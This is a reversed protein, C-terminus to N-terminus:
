YETMFRVNITKTANENALHRDTFREGSDKPCFTKTTTMISLDCERDKLREAGAFENRGMCAAVEVNRCISM